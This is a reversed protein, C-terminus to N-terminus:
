TEMFLLSTIKMNFIQAILLPISAYTLLAYSLDNHKNTQWM